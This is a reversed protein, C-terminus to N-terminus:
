PKSEDRFNFRNRRNQRDYEISSQTAAIRRAMQVAIDLAAARPVHGCTGRREFLPRYDGNREVVLVVWQFCGESDTRIDSTVV